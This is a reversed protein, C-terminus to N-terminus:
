SRSWTRTSTPKASSPASTPWLRLAVIAPILSHRSLVSDAHPSTAALKQTQHCGICNRNMGAIGSRAKLEGASLVTHVGHCAACASRRLAACFSRAFGDCRPPCRAFSSCACRHANECRRETPQFSWPTSRDTACQRCRRMPDRLFRARFVEDLLLRRVVIAVVHQSMSQCGVRAKAARSPECGYNAITM